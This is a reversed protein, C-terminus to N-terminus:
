SARRLRRRRPLLQRDGPPQHQLPLDGTAWNPDLRKEIIVRGQNAIEGHNTLDISFGIPNGAEVTEADATKVLELSAETSAASAGVAAATGTRSSAGLAPVFLLVM